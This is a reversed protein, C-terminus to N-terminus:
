GRIDKESAGKFNKKKRTLPNWVFVICTRDSVADDKSKAILQAAGDGQSGVGKGGYILPQIKPHQLVRHLKPATLEQLPFNIQIPGKMIERVM